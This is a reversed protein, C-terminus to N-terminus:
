WRKFTNYALVPGFGKCHAERDAANYSRQIHEGQFVYWYMDQPRYCILLSLGGRDHYDTLWNFQGPRFPVKRAKLIKLEVWAPEDAYVFLDPIGACTGGSEIRQILMHMGFQRKIITRMQTETM